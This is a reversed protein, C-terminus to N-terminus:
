QQGRRKGVRFWRCCVGLRRATRGGAFDARIQLLEDLITNVPTRFVDRICLNYIHRFLAIAGAKATEGQEAPGYDEQDRAGGVGLRGVVVEGGPKIADRM